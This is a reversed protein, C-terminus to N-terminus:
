TALMLRGLAARTALGRQCRRSVRGATRGTRHLSLTASSWTAYLGSEFAGTLRGRRSSRLQRGTARQGGRPWECGHDRRMLDPTRFRRRRLLDDSLMAAQTEGRNPPTPHAALSTGPICSGEGSRPGGRKLETARRGTWALARNGTTRHPARARRLARIRAPEGEPFPFKGPPPRPSRAACIV